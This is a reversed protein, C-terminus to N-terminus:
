KYFLSPNCPFRLNGTKSNIFFPPTEPSGYTGQFTPKRCKLQEIRRDTYVIHYAAVPIVGIIGGM